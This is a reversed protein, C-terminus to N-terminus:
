EGGGEEGGSEQAGLRDCVVSYHGKNGNEGPPAIDEFAECPGAFGICIGQRIFCDVRTILLHVELPDNVDPHMCVLRGVIPRGNAAEPNAGLSKCVSTVNKSNIFVCCGRSGMPCGDVEILRVAAPEPKPQEEISHPTEGDPIIMFRRGSSVKVFKQM